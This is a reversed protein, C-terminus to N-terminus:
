VAFAGGFTAGSDTSEIIKVGTGAVDVYAIAVRTGKAACAVVTGVGAVTNVWADWNSAVLPSTVRQSKVNGAEIRVRTVSGDGAVATDHKGAANVTTNLPSFDWRRVAEWRNEVAVGIYPERSASKQAADLAPLISRM